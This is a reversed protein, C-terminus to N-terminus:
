TQLHALQRGPPGRPCLVVQGGAASAERRARSIRRMPHWTAHLKSRAAKLEASDHLVACPKGGKMYAHLEKANHTTTPPKMPLFFQAIPM